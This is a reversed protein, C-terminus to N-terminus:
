AFFGGRGFLPNLAAAGLQFLGGMGAAGRQNGANFAALQQNQQLQNAGIADAPSIGQSQVPLAQPMNLAPTGQLVAALENFPISRERILNNIMRDQEVGGTLVAQNAADTLAQQRGRELRGLERERAEPSAGTVALRAETRDMQETFDPEMLDRARDFFAQEVNERVGVDGFGEFAGPLAGVMGQGQGLLGEAIASQLDFQRQGTPSLTINQTREPSGIEGTFFVDGFPTSQGIQSFRAFDEAAQRNAGQQAAILAQPDIADPRRGGGFLSTM